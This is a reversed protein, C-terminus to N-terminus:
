KMSKLSEATGYLMIYADNLPLDRADIYYAAKNFANSMINYRRMDITADYLYATVTHKGDKGMFLDFYADMKCSKDLYLYASISGEEQNLRIDIRM